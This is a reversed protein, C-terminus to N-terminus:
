MKLCMSDYCHHKDKQSSIQVIYCFTYTACPTDKEPSWNQHSTHIYTAIYTHRCPKLCTQLSTHIYRPPQRKRSVLNLPQIYTHIYTAIYTHRCPKLCTQLSTHIYRPTTKKHLVTQIFHVIYAHKYRLIYTALTKDKKRSVM